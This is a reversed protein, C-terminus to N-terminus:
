DEGNIYLYGDKKFKRLAGQAEDRYDFTLIYFYTGTPLRDNRNITARGDSYGYFKSTPTEDYNNAEYVKVGWRNYIEVHMNQACTTDNIAQEINFFDNIGDDNPTILNYVTLSCPIIDSADIRALTFVGYADVAATVTQNAENVAGGEDVWLQLVEDWRAIHIAEIPDAFIESPTTVADWSLTVLVNSNGEIPDITWHEASDIVTLNPGLNSVPYNTNTEEFFYQGQFNETDLDPGSIEAFRYYGSDGIPYTFTNDGVKQVPGDVHSEDSTFVHDADSEFVFTGGFDDNDVIGQDFSSENEISIGGSLQFAPQLSPNDFLANYLFSINLGTINQVSSGIFRTLGTNGNFDVLGDNNWNAYVYVDGDNFFSGTQTNNFDGVTSVITGQTVSVDGINTTQAESFVFAVVMVISLTIHKKFYNM